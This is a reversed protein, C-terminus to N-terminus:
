NGHLCSPSIEGEKFISRIGDSIKEVTQRSQGHGTKKLISVIGKDSGRGMLVRGTVFRTSLPIISSSHYQYPLPLISLPFLGSRTFGNQGTSALGMGAQGGVGSGMGAQGGM